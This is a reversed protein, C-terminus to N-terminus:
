PESGRVSAAEWLLVAGAERGGRQWVGWHGSWMVPAIGLREDNVRLRVAGPQERHLTITNPEGPPRIRNYPMWRWEPRLAPCDEIAAPPLDGPPCRRTTLYGEGSIAYIVRAGDAEELWVGWAAGPDSEPELRARVALTFVDAPLRAAAPAAIWEGAGPGLESRTGAIWGPAADHWLVTEAVPPDAGGRALWIAGGVVLAIVLAVGALVARWVGRPLSDDVRQDMM